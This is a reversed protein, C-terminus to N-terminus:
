YDIEVTGSDLIRGFVEKRSSLNVLKIRDGKRGEERVEGWATIKFRLNEVSMIVRDGRKVLPPMEVMSKRLVEQGNVSLTTRHNLIEAMESVIDNPLLAINRSVWQVDRERIEHHKQLFHAAVVVDAYIEVRASVRIREKEQGDIQFRLTASLVGGRYAQEPVIVEHSLRGPPLLVPECGRLEKIEVRKKPDNVIQQLHSEIMRSIDEQDLAWGKDRATKDLGERPAGQVIWPFFWLLLVILCGRLCHSGRM